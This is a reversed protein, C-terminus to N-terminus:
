VHPRGIKVHVKGGQEVVFLRDTGDGAATLYLPASFGEWVPQIEIRLRSLPLPPSPQAPAPAPEPVPTRTPTPSERRLGCGSALVSLGLTLLLIAVLAPSVARAIGTRSALSSRV